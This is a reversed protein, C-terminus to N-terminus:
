KNAIKTTAIDILRRQIPVCYKRKNTVWTPKTILSCHWCFWQIRRQALLYEIKNVLFHFYFNLVKNIQIFM